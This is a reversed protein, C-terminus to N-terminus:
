RSPRFYNNAGVFEVLQFYGDVLDHWDSNGYVEHLMRGANFWGEEEPLIARRTVPHIGYEVLAIVMDIANLHISVTETSRRYACLRERLDAIVSRIASVSLPYKKKMHNFKPELMSVCSRHLASLVDACQRGAIFV